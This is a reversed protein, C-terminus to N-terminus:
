QRYRIFTAFTATTHLPFQPPLGQQRTRLCAPLTCLHAVFLCHTTDAAHTVDTNVTCLLVDPSVVVASRRSAGYPIRAQPGPPFGLDWVGSAMVLVEEASEANRSWRVLTCYFGPGNARWVLATMDGGACMGLIYLVVLVSSHASRPVVSYPTTTISRTKSNALGTYHIYM